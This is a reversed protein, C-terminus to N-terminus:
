DYVVVGRTPHVIMRLRSLNYNDFECGKGVVLVTPRQQNFKTNYCKYYWTHSVRKSGDASVWKSHAVHYNHDAKSTDDVKSALFELWEGHSCFYVLNSHEDLYKDISM